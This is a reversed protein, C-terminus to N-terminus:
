TFVLLDSGVLTVYPESIASSFTNCRGDAPTWAAWKCVRDESKACLEICAAPSGPKVNSHIPKGQKGIKDLLSDTDSVRFVRTPQVYELRCNEEM